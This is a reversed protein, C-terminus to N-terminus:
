ATHGLSATIETFRSLVDENYVAHAARDWIQVRNGLGTVVVDKDLGAYRLMNEPIMVRYASDLETDHSNAYLILSLEQAEPLIPNRGDLAATVHADYDESRWLSISRPAGRKAEPSKALVVGNAFAERFRAPVTLRHKADLSHEFTGRFIM